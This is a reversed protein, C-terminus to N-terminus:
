LRLDALRGQRAPVHRHWGIPYDDGDRRRQGPGGVGFASLKSAIETALSDDRLYYTGAALDVNGVAGAAEKFRLRNNASTLVIAGLLVPYSM